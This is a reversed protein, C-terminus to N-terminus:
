FSGLRQDSLLIPKLSTKSSNKPTLRKEMNLLTSWRKDCFPSLALAHLVNSPQSATTPGNQWTSPSRTPRQQQSPRLTKKKHPTPNTSQTFPKKSATSTSAPNRSRKSSTRTPKSNRHQLFFLNAPENNICIHRM